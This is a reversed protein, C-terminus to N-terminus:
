CLEYKMNVILMSVIRDSEIQNALFSSGWRSLRTLEGTAPCSGGVVRWQHFAMVQEITGGGGGM